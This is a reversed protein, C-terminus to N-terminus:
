ERNRPIEIYFVTGKGVESEVQIAGGHKKIIEHSIYLGLGTGEGVTKTTFFPNFIEKLHVSPIGIGTDRCQVVVKEAERDYRTTLTIRGRRDPLAQIANKIMNIFVQGLNAFNGQVNPLDEEYNKEIIVPDKRYQNHLVRLANDIVAHINVSEEYTQTQRSLDLLSRVIDSARRMERLSFDLDDLVENRLEGKVDDWSAVTEVTTQTLSYASSLPNNLEHAAGAVLQGIAALSESRILQEQTREKEELTRRLDATREEVKRELELNMFSIKEYAWAHEIATVSQNAITMLLQRDENVFLEGSKKQGLVILGLLRHRSLLPILLVAGLNEFLALVQSLEDPLSHLQRYVAAKDLPEESQELFRVVPHNHDFVHATDCEVEEDGANYSLYRNDEEKLMLLDIRSLQLVSSIRDLLLDRIQDFRLFSAMDRSIEELLKQYDYKGRYFLNDIAKQVRDRLPNFFLVILLAMMFPLLLSHGRESTMFLANFLYIIFIYFLTLVGTLMFYNTGRRIMAGMDFLDYKLVGFALFIAPLFSFNGMPYMDIGSVPLINMALVLATIGMGGILYKIRNKEHNDAATKLGKLLVWLCYFVTFGVGASFVNFVPGAKAIIGFTYHHFGGIFLDTPIFFLLVISFVYAIGEIWKRHIIGLFSHVFRIYLPLSFVFLLYTWRDIQLALVKDSVINVLAVDANMIAGLFCIGAFLIITEKKESRLISVLFIFTLIFFGLVPPVIYGYSILLANL